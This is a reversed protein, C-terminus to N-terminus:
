NDIRAGRRRQRGHRCAVGPGTSDSQNGARHRARADQLDPDQLYQRYLHRYDALSRAFDVGGGTTGGDPFAEVTRLRGQADSLGEDLQALTADVPSQFESDFTEYVFDGLHVVFRIQDSAPRREDADIMHRWARYFGHVRDQCSAFAFRLSASDDDQPATLTRGVRSLTGDPARFRYFYASDPQLGDVVVRLSHDTEPEARYSQQILFSTFALDTSVELTVWEPIGAYAQLRTWLVVSYPRPDGSAVGQPFSYVPDDSNFAVECGKLLPISAATTVYSGLLRIFSRRHM